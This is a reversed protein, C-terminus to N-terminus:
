TSCSGTASRRGSAPPRKGGAGSRGRPRRGGSAAWQRADEEGDFRFRGSVAARVDDGATAVVYLGRDEAVVRGVRRGPEDHDRYSTAFPEGWGLAQLAAGEGADRAM